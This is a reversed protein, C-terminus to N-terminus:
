LLGKLDTNREEKTSEKYKEKRFIVSNWSQLDRAHRICGSVRQDERERQWVYVYACTRSRASLTKSRAVRYVYINVTEGPGCRAGNKSYNKIRSVGTSTSGRHINSVTTDFSKTFFAAFVNKKTPAHSTSQNIWPYLISLFPAFTLNITKREYM